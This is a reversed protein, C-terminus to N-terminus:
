RLAIWLWRSQNDRLPQGFAVILLNAVRHHWHPPHRLRKKAWCMAFPRVSCPLWFNDAPLPPLVPSLVLPTSGFRLVWLAWPWLPVSNIYIKLYNREKQKWYKRTGIEQLFLTPLAPFGRREEGYWHNSQTQFRSHLLLQLLKVLM